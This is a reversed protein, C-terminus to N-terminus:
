VLEHEVRILTIMDEVDKIFPMVFRASDDGRFEPEVETAWAMLLCSLIEEKVRIKTAGSTESILTKECPEGGFISIDFGGEENGIIMINLKDIL